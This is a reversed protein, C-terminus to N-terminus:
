RPRNVELCFGDGELMVDDIIYILPMEKIEGPQLTEITYYESYKRPQKEGLYWVQGSGDEAYGVRRLRFMMWYFEFGETPRDGNNEAIVDIIVYSYHNKFNGDQDFVAGWPPAAMCIEPSDMGEPLPYDPKMKKGMPVVSEPDVNYKYDMAKNVKEAFAISKEDIKGDQKPENNKEM